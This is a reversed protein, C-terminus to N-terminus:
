DWPNEWQYGCRRCTATLSNDAQNHIALRCLMPRKNFKKTGEWKRNAPNPMPRLPPPPPLKLLAPPLQWTQKGLLRAMEDLDEVTYTPVLENLHDNVRVQYPVPATHQVWEEPTWMTFLSPGSRVVSGQVAGSITSGGAWYPDDPFPVPEAPPGNFYEKWREVIAEEEEKSAM